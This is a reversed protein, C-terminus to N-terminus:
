VKCEQGNLHSAERELMALLQYLQAALKVCHHLSFCFGARFSGGGWLDAVDSINGESNNM